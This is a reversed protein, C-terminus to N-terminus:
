DRAQSGCVRRLRHSRERLSKAGGVPNLDLEVRDDSGALREGRYEYLGYAVRHFRCDKTRAHSSLAEYVSSKPVPSGLVAEVARWIDRSGIAGAFAAPRCHGCGSSCGPSCPAATKDHGRGDAGRSQVLFREVPPLEVQLRPNSCAGNTGYGRNGPFTPVILPNAARLYSGRRSDRPELRAASM